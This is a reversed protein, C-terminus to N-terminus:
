FLDHVCCWIALVGTWQSLSICLLKKKKEKKKNNNLEKRTKHWKIYKEFITTMLIFVLFFIIWHQWTTKRKPNVRWWWIFIMNRKKGFVFIWFRFFFCFNWDCCGFFLFCSLFKKDFSLIWQAFDFFSQLCEANTKKKIM